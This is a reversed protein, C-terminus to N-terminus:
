TRGTFDYTTDFRIVPFTRDRGPVFDLNQVHRMQFGFRFRLAKSYAYSVDVGGLFLKQRIRPADIFNTSRISAFDMESAIQIRENVWRSTRVYLDRGGTGAFHALPFSKYEFGSRYQANTFSISSSQTYEVRADALGTHLFNPMYVGVLFGPQNPILAPNGRTDDIQLEGYLELDKTLPPLIRDVDPLRLTVEV